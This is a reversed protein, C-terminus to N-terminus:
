EPTAAEVAQQVSAFSYDSLARGMGGAVGVLVTPTGGIGLARALDLDATVQDAHADSDLCRQFKRADLGIGKAAQVLAPEKDPANGWTAQTRFLVQQYDWFRGQDDACRAARAALFSGTEPQLPYDHYVLKAKGTEVLQKEIVPEIRTAFEACHPCLYDEFVLITVPADARGMTVGKAMRTLKAPDNAGPIDVPEMVPKGRGRGGIAYSVVGAGVLGVLALAVYFNRLSPQPPAQPM